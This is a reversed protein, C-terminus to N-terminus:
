ATVALSLAKTTRESWPQAELRDFIGRAEELLAGADETRGQEILWEAHELLALALWFPTGIERFLGVAGVYGPEVAGIDGEMGALRAGFRDRQARLFPTTQGEPLTDIISLLEQVKPLDGLSFASEAAEAFAMKVGPYAPGLALRTELAKETENLAEELRGEARLVM